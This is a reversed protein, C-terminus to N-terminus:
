KNTMLAGKDNATLQKKQLANRIFVNWGSPQVQFEKSFIEELSTYAMIRKLGTLGDKQYALLCLLAEIVYNPNTYEDLYWFDRFNNLDVEPHVQLYDNLHKLHWSLDKGFSGGYFTALGERLPSHPFKPNLYVHVVEHFYNEGLGSAYIINNKDDAMGSPRERGGMGLVFDFGRLKQLEEKNDTFYYRIAIPKLSWDNELKKVRGILSDAKIASFTHGSPYIFTINRRQTQKRNKTNIDLPSIFYPKGSDDFGIYHNTIGTAFINKFSDASAFLTKLHVYGNVPKAYILTKSEGMLYIPFDTNIAFLLPDPQKNQQLDKARWYKKFDPLEYYKIESLYARYFNVSAAVKSESTDVGSNIFLSQGLCLRVSLLLGIAIFSQKM